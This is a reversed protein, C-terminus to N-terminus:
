FFVGSPPPPVTYGGSTTPTVTPTPSPTASPSVTPTPTVTDTPSPTVTLSPTVTPTPIYTPTPTPTPTPTVDSASSPPTGGTSTTCDDVSATVSPCRLVSAVTSDYVVAGTSAGGGDTYIRFTGESADYSYHYEDSDTPSGDPWVLMYPSSKLADESTPYAGELAHISEVVDAVKRVNSIRVSDQTRRQSVDPRVISLLVGSMIGILSVVIILELLTFGLDLTRIKRPMLLKM